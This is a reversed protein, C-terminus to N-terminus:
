GCLLAELKIYFNDLCERNLQAFQCVNLNQDAYVELLLAEHDKCECTGPM